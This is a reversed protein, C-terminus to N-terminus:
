INPALLPFLQPSNVNAGDIMSAQIAYRMKNKKKPIIYKRHTGM